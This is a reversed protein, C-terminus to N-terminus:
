LLPSTPAAAPAHVVRAFAGFANGAAKRGTGATGAAWSAVRPAKFSQRVGAAGPTLLEDDAEANCLGGGPALCDGDGGADGDADAVAASGDRCVFM